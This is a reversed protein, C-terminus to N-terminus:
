TKIVEVTANYDPIGAEPSRKSPDILSNGEPWHVQLNGPAIPAIVVRCKMSGIPSRLTVADGQSIGLRKADADSMFVADRGAGTIADRREQVMSNFQKGRRTSVRFQGAPLATDFVPVPQLHARGDPMPFRGGECLRPGGYQFQDGARHLREIGGYQPVERGIEDRVAQTTTCGVAVALEPRVRAALEVLVGGEWRAEAPRPGPIEPSFIVRRETSTETVGGPIEYRTMAPLLLVDEAPEVFMQSSLAIDMHVRLPIRKLAAEVVPPDPLVELFNGGISVMVDVLRNGAAQLMEPATMGPASPVEFGWRRGLDAATEPKISVGGPFSTSYAGMEAGGQVGSHGRIPMLGCGPRGVFGRLLAVNVIARVNDEGTAHQTVGMSWVFIARRAQGLMTALEKVQAADMGARAALEEHSHRALDERLEEFGVTHERLFGADVWGNEVIHKAVGTFLAADGGIALQFYRDCLRTGFLASEAVSPVWYRDMGPERYPNVVVVKVGRKKAYHLYKTAVPQNNAINSGVFVIVESGLWDSLSCTTAAVGIASKLASTSPSHCVRAANDISNTGMARVAKQVAYYTENPVGRSTMYFALRDPRASRIRGAMLGFAEDWSIPTFGLRGRARRMPTSLRGLARLQAGSKSRLVSVDKLQAADISPMTNLRLLRLRVNCLHVGKLTWDHLGTTGLSCGDCVGQNLIRWAYPLRDRNEWVASTIELYNNPRQLGMGFPRWSAWNKPTWM